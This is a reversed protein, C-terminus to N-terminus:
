RGKKRQEKERLNTKIFEAVVEVVITFLLSCILPFMTLFWELVVEIAFLTILLTM